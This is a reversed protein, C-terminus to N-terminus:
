KPSNNENIIEFDDLKPFGVPRKKLIMKSNKYNM